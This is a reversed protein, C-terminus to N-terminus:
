QLPISNGTSHALFLFSYIITPVKEYLNKSDTLSCCSVKTADTHTVVLELFSSILDDVNLVASLRQSMETVCDLDLAMPGLHGSSSSAREEFQAHYLACTQKFSIM